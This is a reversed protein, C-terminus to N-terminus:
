VNGQGDLGADELRADWVWFGIVCLVIGVTVCIDAVNFVPFDMFATSIFDTVSGGLIRDIMNGMGGGAVLGLPIVLNFPINPNKWVIGTALVIFVVAVGIFLVGAGEGLSFAAGTNEVHVLNIVGPILVRPGSELVERAAAKTAQDILVSLIVVIWYVGIRAVRDGVTGFRTEM